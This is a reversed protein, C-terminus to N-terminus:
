RFISGGVARALTEIQPGFFVVVLCLIGLILGSFFRGWNEQTYAVLARVVMILMIIFGIQSILNSTLAQVDINM